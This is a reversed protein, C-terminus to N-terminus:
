LKTQKLKENMPSGPDDCIEVFKTLALSDRVLPAAHYLKGQLSDCRVFIYDMSADFYDAYRRLHEVSPTAQRNEFRNIGAQTFGIVEAFKTQFLAISWLTELINGLKKM